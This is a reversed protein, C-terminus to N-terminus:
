AAKGKRGCACVGPGAPKPREGLRRWCVVCFGESAGLGAAIRAGESAFPPLGRELRTAIRGEAIAQARALKEAEFDRVVRGLLREVRAAARERTGCFIVPLRGTWELAEVIARVKGIQEPKARFVTGLDRFDFCDDIVVCARRYALLRVQEANFRDHDWTITSLMDAGSKREIRAFDEFGDAAYDGEGLTGWRALVGPAVDVREESTKDPPLGFLPAQERRDVVIVLPSARTVICGAETERPLGGRAANREM